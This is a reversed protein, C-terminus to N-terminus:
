IKGGGEAPYEFGWEHGCKGCRWGVNVILVGGVEKQRVATEHEGQYVDGEAGCKPCKEGESQTKIWAIIEESTITWDDKWGAVYGWKFQQHLKQSVVPDGTVDLLLALALQAAGSGGYGWNFGDPSHNRVKQSPKPDFIEDDKTVFQDGPKVRSEGKQGSHRIGRYVHQEPM